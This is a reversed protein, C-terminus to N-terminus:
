ERKRNFKLSCIFNMIILFDYLTKSQINKYHHFMLLDSSKYENLIGVRHVEESINKCSPKQIRKSNSERM